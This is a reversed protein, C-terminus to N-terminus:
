VYFRQLIREREREERTNFVEKIKVDVCKLRAKILGCEDEIKEEARTDRYIEMVRIVGPETVTEGDSLHDM